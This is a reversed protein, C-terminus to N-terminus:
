KTHEKQYDEIWKEVEHEFAEMEDENVKSQGKDLNTKAQLAQAIMAKTMRKCEKEFNRYENNEM